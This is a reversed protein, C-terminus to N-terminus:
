LNPQFMLQERTHGLAGISELFLDVRSLLTHVQLLLLHGIDTSSVEQACRVNVFAEM